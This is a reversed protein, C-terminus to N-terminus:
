QGFAENLALSMSDNAYATASGVNARALAELIAPHAPAENDSKFNLENM